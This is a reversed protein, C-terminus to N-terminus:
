SSARERWCKTHLNYHPLIGFRNRSLWSDEDWPNNLIYVMHPLVSGKETVWGIRDPIADLRSLVRLNLMASVGSVPDGGWGLANSPGSM